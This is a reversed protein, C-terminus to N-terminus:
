VFATPTDDAADAPPAPPPDLEDAARTLNEVRASDSQKFLEAEARLAAARQQAETLEAAPEAAHETDPETDPATDPATDTM